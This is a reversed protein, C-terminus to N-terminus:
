ETIIPSYDEGLYKIDIETSIGEEIVQKLAANIDEALKTNDKGVIFYSYSSSKVNTLDFTNVDFKFEPGYYGNYM